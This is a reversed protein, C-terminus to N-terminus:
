PAAARRPQLPELLAFGTMYGFAERQARPLLWGLLVFLLPTPMRRGVRRGVDRHYRLDRLAWGHSRFFGEWDTPDFRFDVNPGFPLKFRRKRYLEMFLPSFYDVIWGQAHPLAALDVALRGVDELPLYPVVGESLVLLRGARADLDRLLAQREAVDALDLGIRELRCRPAEDQLLGSKYAIVQPFDLEVWRLSPSLEMRYPRTDLGAGLNLVMDAGEALAMRIFDDVIVTRISVSWALVRKHGLTRALTRGLEGALREALPDRFLPHRRRSELARYAAIWFATDSVQQIPSDAV